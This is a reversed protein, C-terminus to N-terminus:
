NNYFYNKNIKLRQNKNPIQKNNIKNKLKKASFNNKNNYLYIKMKLTKLYNQKKIWNM